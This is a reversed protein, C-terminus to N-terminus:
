NASLGYSHDPDYKANEKKICYKYVVTFLLIYTPVIIILMLLINTIILELEKQAILGKPHVVLAHDSALVFCIAVVAGMIALIVTLFKISKMIWM